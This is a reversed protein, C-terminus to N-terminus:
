TYSFEDYNRKESRQLASDCCRAGVSDKFITELGRDVDNNTVFHVVIRTLAVGLFVVLLTGLGVFGGSRRLLKIDDGSTFNFNNNAELGSRTVEAVEFSSSNIVTIKYAVARIVEEVIKRFEKPQWNNGCAVKQSVNWYLETVSSEPDENVASSDRECKDSLTKAGIRLLRVGQEKTLSQMLRYEKDKAELKMYTNSIGQLGKGTVNLSINQSADKSVSLLVSELENSMSNTERILTTQCSFFNLIAIENPSYAPVYLECGPTFNVSYTTNLDDNIGGVIGGFGAEKVTVDRDQEIVLLNSFYCAFLGLAVTAVLKFSSCRSHQANQRSVLCTSRLGHYRWRSFVTVSFLGAITASFSSEEALLLAGLDSITAKGRSKFGFLLAIGLGYLQYALLTTIVAMLIEKKLESTPEWNWFSPNACCHTLIGDKIM